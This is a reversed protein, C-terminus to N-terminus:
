IEDYWTTFRHYWQTRNELEAGLIIGLLTLAIHQSFNTIIEIYLINM